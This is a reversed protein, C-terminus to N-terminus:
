GSEDPPAREALELERAVIERILQSVSMGRQAALRAFATAQDRMVRAGIIPAIGGHPDLAASGRM